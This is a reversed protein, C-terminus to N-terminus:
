PQFHLRIQRQQSRGAQNSQARRWSAFRTVFVSFGMLVVVAIALARVQFTSTVFRGPRARSIGGPFSSNSHTAFEAVRMAPARSATNTSVKRVVSCERVNTSQTTALPLFRVAM